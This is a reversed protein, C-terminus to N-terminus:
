CKLNLLTNWCTYIGHESPKYLLELTHLLANRKTKVMNSFVTNSKMNSRYKKLHNTCQERLTKHPHHTPMTHAPLECPRITSYRTATHQLTQLTNCHTAAYQPTNCHTTTNATHQLTNCRIATHQLTNCHAINGDVNVGLHVYSMPLM